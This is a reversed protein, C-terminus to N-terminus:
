SRSLCSWAGKQLAERLAHRAAIQLALAFQGAGGTQKKHTYDVTAARPITERYAVLPAGM